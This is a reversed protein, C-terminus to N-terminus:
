SFNYDNFLIGESDLYRDNPIHTQNSLLSKAHHYTKNSLDKVVIEKNARVDDTFKNASVVEDYETVIEVGLYDFRKVWDNLCFINQEPLAQLRYLGSAYLALHEEHSEGTEFDKIRLYYNISM